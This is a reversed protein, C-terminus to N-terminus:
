VWVGESYTRNVTVMVLELGDVGQYSEKKLRASVEINQLGGGRLDCM